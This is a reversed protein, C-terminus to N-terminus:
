SKEFDNKIELLSRGRSHYGVGKRTGAAGKAMGQSKKAMYDNSGATSSALNSAELLM